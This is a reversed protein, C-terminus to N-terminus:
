QGYYDLRTLVSERHPGEGVRRPNQAREFLPQHLHQPLSRRQGHTFHDRAQAPLGSRRVGRHHGREIPEVLLAEEQALLVARREAVPGGHRAVLIIAADDLRGDAPQDVLGGIGNQRGEDVDRRRHVFGVQLAEFAEDRHASTSSLISGALKIPKATTDIPRQQVPESAKPTAARHARGQSRRKPGDVSRTTAALASTRAGTDLKTAVSNSISRETEAPVL